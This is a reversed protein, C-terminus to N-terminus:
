FLIKICARMIIILQLKDSTCILTKQKVKRPSEQLRFNDILYLDRMKM